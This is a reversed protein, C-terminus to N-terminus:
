QRAMGARGAGGSGPQRHVPAESALEVFGESLLVVRGRVELLEEALDLLLITAGVVIAGRELAREPEQGVQQPPLGVRGPRAAGRGLRAGHQAQELL